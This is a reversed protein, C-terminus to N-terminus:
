NRKVFQYNTVLKRSRGDATNVVDPKTDVLQSLLLEDPESGNWDIVVHSSSMDTEDVRPKKARHKGGPTRDDRVAECCLWLVPSVYSFHVCYDCQLLKWLIQSRLV